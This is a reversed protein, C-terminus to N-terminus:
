VPKRVARLSIISLSVTRFRYLKVGFILFNLFFFIFQHMYNTRNYSM